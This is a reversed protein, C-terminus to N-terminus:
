TKTTAPRPTLGHDPSECQGNMRWLDFEAWGNPFGMDREPSLLDDGPFKKVVTRLGSIPWKNAPDIHRVLYALEALLTYVKRRDTEGTQAVHQLPEHVQTPNFKPPTMTLRRNWLRSHHACVNRLYNLDRLWSGLLPGGSIGVEAAIQNRDAKVMLNFLRVLAGLDLFEVAIWVPLPDGYKALNHKVYDENRAPHALSEYKNVWQEFVDNPGTVGPSLGIPPGACQVPDLSERRVHGFVDRKGLVHAIKTRMGIEVTEIADLCTLRLKRDFRWLATVQEFTAGSRMTEARYHVSSSRPADEALLERFPYVYASLRYYGVARLTDLAAAQDACALGRGLLKDLQKEYTLHPKNYM